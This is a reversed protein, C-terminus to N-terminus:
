QSNLFNLYGKQITKSVLISMSMNVGIIFIDSLLVEQETVCVRLFVM